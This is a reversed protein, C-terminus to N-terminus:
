HDTPPCAEYVAFCAATRNVLLFWARQEVKIPILNDVYGLM